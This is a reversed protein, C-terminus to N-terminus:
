SPICVVGVTRNLRDARCVFLGQFSCGFLHYLITDFLMAWKIACRNDRRTDSILVAVGVVVLLARVHHDVVIGFAASVLSIRAQYARWWRPPGYLISILVELFVKGFVKFSFALGSVRELFGEFLVLRVAPIHGLARISDFHSRGCLV